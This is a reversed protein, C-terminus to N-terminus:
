SHPLRGGRPSALKVPVVTPHTLRKKGYRVARRSIARYHHTVRSLPERMRRCVKQDGTPSRRGVSCLAGTQRLWLNRAPRPSDEFQSAVMSWTELAAQHHCFYLETLNIGLGLRGSVGLGEGRPSPPRLGPSPATASLALHRPPKLTPESNPTNEMM